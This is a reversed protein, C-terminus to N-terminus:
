ALAMTGNTAKTIEYTRDIILLMRTLLQLMDPNDDVILIRKVPKNLRHLAESIDAQRVPKILYDVAGAELAYDIKPPFACGIIPMDPLDQRAQEIVSVLRNPTATNLILTHAPREHLSQVAQPLTRVTEWIIDDNFREFEPALDSTEDCIMLRSKGSIEPLKPSSIREHWVWDERLRPTSQQLSPVPPAIPLSFSFISGSQEGRQSEVWIRGNHREIFQQSISLGLGNGGLGAPTQEGQAFPEFIKNLDQSAIGPGTDIIRITINNEEHSAEVSIGGKETYRAANSVLNLIVQRIRTRDCYVQPFEADINITVSLKKKELLPRVVLVANQIDETLDVWERHLSLRGAEAQSLDLVDNILSALHNSNRQVIELDDLLLPPIPEDYAEPVELLTDILGLIMNLPTRFEHSIKAAFVAKAQNAEEAIQHLASLRENLLKQTEFANNLDTQMQALEAKQDRSEDLRKQAQHYHQWAWHAPEVLPRVVASQLLLILWMVGVTLVISISAVGANITIPWLWLLLTTEFVATIVGESLTFVATALLPPVILLPYLEPINLYIFALYILSITTGIALWRAVMPWWRNVGWILLALGYCLLIMRNDNPAGFLDRTVVLLLGLLLLFAVIWSPSLRLDTDIELSTESSLTSIGAKTIM